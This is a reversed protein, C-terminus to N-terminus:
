EKGIVWAAAVAALAGMVLWPSLDTPPAGPVTPLTAATDPPLPRDSLAPPAAPETSPAPPTPPPPLLSDLLRGWFVVLSPARDRWPINSESVGFGLAIWRRGPPDQWEAAAVEGADTWLVARQGAAAAPRLTVLSRVPLGVLDGHSFVSSPDATATALVRREVVPGTDLGAGTPPCILVVSGAFGEPAAVGNCIVADAQAPTAVPTVRPHASLVRRLAPEDAGIMAVRLRGPTALPTEALDNDARADAATLRARLMKAGTTPRVTRVVRAVGGPAPAVTMEGPPDTEVARGDATLELRSSCEAGGVGAVEAFVRWRGGSEPLPVAELRTVALDDGRGGIVDVRVEPEATPPERSTFVVTPRPEGGRARLAARWDAERSSVTLRAVTEPTPPEATRPGPLDDDPVLLLEARDAPSLSRLFASCRDRAEDFRTRGDPRLGRMVASRDLVVLVRRTPATDRSLMPGAAAVALAATAALTVWLAPPPGEAPLPRSGVRALARRWLMLAGVTAERRRPRLLALLLLCVPVALLGL